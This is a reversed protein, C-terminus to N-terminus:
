QLFRKRKDWNRMLYQFTEMYVNDVKGPYLCSSFNQVSEDFRKQLEKKIIPPDTCERRNRREVSKRIMRGSAFISNNTELVYQGSLNNKHIRYQTLAKNIYGIKGYHAAMIAIFTDHECIGSPIPFIRDLHDTRMCICNASYQIASSMVKSYDRKQLNAHNYRFLSNCLVVGKEDIVSRDCVCMVCDRNKELYDIQMSVKDSKWIDDQDALFLIKGHVYRAAKSVNASLGMNNTNKILQFFINEVKKNKVWQSIVTRTRDMSADDSIIVEIPRYDQCYISDLMSEIYKQGNYTPLLITALGSM